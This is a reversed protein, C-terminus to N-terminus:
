EYQTQAFKKCLDSIINTDKMLVDVTQILLYCLQLVKHSGATPLIAAVDLCMGVCNDDRQLYLRIDSTGDTGLYVVSSFIYLGKQLCYPHNIESTAVVGKMGESGYLGLHLLGGINTNCDFSADM